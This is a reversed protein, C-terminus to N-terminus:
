TAASGRVPGSLRAKAEAIRDVDASSRIFRKPAREIVMGVQAGERLLCRPCNQFPSKAAGSSVTFRCSPCSLYTM